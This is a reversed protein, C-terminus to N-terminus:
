DATLQILEAKISAIVDRRGKLQFKEALASWNPVLLLSAHTIPCDTITKNDALFVRSISPYVKDYPLEADIFRQIRIQDYAEVTQVNVELQSHYEDGAKFKSYDNSLSALAATTIDPFYREFWLPLDSIFQQHLSYSMKSLPKSLAKVVMLNRMGSAKDRHLGLHVPLAEHSQWFALLAPEFGFSSGWYDCGEALAFQELAKLLNSAVGRRRYVQAVAIRSVRLLKARCWLRDASQNALSQSLLNGQPRRQGNVIGNLVDDAGSTFGGEEYALLVGVLKSGSADEAVWLHLYPVDLLQRLDAPRTQYHAEVLLGFVSRLLKEDQLLTQSNVKRVTTTSSAIKSENVADTNIDTDVDLILLKNLFRELPDGSAWRMPQKLTLLQMLPEQALLYKKFRLLFGRGSGEYGHLTSSFVLRPAADALQYLIPLPIGAAEDVILLDCLPQDATSTAADIILQDVAVFKISNLTSLSGLASFLNEVQRRLSAVLLIKRDNKALLAKVALGLAVSKGRGRDATLLIIGKAQQSLKDIAQIVAQQEDSAIFAQGAEAKQIAAKVEQINAEQIYPVKVGVDGDLCEAQRVISLWPKNNTVSAQEFLAAIRQLFYGSMTYPSPRLAQYRQYDPDDYTPWQEFAPTLLLLLAGGRLTGSTMGLMDPALGSWADIVLCDADSGLLQATANPSIVRINDSTPVSAGVWCIASNMDTAQNSILSISQMAAQQCWAQSGSLVVCGRFNNERAFNLTSILSQKLPNHM